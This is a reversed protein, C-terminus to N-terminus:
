RYYNLKVGMVLSLMLFGFLLALCMVVYFVGENITCLFRRFEISIVNYVFLCGISLLVFISLFLFSFKLSYYTIYNRNPSYVSVFIFLIYVGGIYILCFLLPYWSFGIVAYSILRCILSNVVLFGCYYVPHNVLSFLFLMLFYIFFLISICFM